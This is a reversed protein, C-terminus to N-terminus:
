HGGSGNALFPPDPRERDATGPPPDPRKAAPFDLFYAVRNTSDTEFELSGGNAAVFNQVVTLAFNSNRHRSASHNHLDSFRSKAASPLSKGADGIQIRVVKERDTGTDASIASITVLGGRPTTERAEVVLRLLAEKLGVPDAMVFLPGPKLHFKLSRFRGLTRVFSEDLQCLIDNVDVLVPKGADGRGLTNLLQVLGREKAHQRNLSELLRLDAGDANDILQSLLEDAAIQSESLEKALSAALLTLANMKQWRLKHEEAKRRETIDRFAVVVGLKTEGDRIDCLAAEIMIPGNAAGTNLMYIGSSANSSGSCHGPTLLLVAPLGTAEDLPAFVDSFRKGDAQSQSWGTLKSAPENMHKINGDAGATILADAASHFAASFWAESARVKKEMQHKYLAVEIQAHFDVGVFPKVVYGYPETVRARKLTERDAYATVFIVPVDFKRRIHHAAQIGDQNGRLRIDMLVMSPRDREVSAVADEFNDALTPVLYGAKELRNKLDLAILGEDEVVLIKTKM